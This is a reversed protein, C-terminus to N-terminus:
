NWTKILAYKQLKKVRDEKINVIRRKLNSFFLSIPVWGLFLNRIFINFCMNRINFYLSELLYSSQFNNGKDYTIYLGAHLPRKVFYSKIDFGILFYEIYNREFYELDGIHEISCV